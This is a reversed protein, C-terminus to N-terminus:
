GIRGARAAAPLRVHRVVDRASEVAGEIWAPYSSCHEGAFLLRGEPRAALLREDECTGPDKGWRAAAAGHSWPDQGWSRTVVERVMGPRSLQPHIASLEDLVVSTRTAPDMDDLVQADAGISYSALLAAGHVPDHEVPPYYTQRVVGGTFSAGGMIGDRQWFPERCLLAIKTGPWYAMDHILELKDPHLGRLAIHRLVSFPVTCVVADCEMVTVEAGNRVILRVGRDHVDIGVVEHGVLIDGRLDAALRHAIQDMGGTLRSLPLSTEAAVDAFFSLLRGGHQMAARSHDAFFTNLDVGGSWRTGLYPRVDIGDVFTLLEGLVDDSMAHAFDAPATATASAALWAAFRVTDERHDAAPLRSRLQQVLVPPADRVRVHGLGTHVFTRDDSFLTLFPRLRSGLGLERILAMTREHAGPIRMAGLEVLPGPQVSGFRHTRIRGGVVRRSELVTVDHGRRELERSAVLGAAGAGIVVIRTAQVPEADLPVAVSRDEACSMEASTSM